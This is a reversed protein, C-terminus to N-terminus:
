KKTEMESFIMKITKKRLGEWRRLLDAPCRLRLFLVEPSNQDLEIKALIEEKKLDILLALFDKGRAIEQELAAKMENLCTEKKGAIGFLGDNFTCLFVKGKSLNDRLLDASLQDASFFKVGPWATCLNVHQITHRTQIEKLFEDM